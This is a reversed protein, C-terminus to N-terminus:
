DGYAFPTEAGDLSGICAARAVRGGVVATQVFDRRDFGQGRLREVAFVCGHEGRFFPIALASRMPRVSTELEGGLFAGESHCANRETWARLVLPGYGTDPLDRPYSGVVVLRKDRQGVYLSVTDVKLEAAVLELCREIWLRRPAQALAVEIERQMKAGSDSGFREGGECVIAPIAISQTLEAPLDDVVAETPAEPRAGSGYLLRTKGIEILDGERLPFAHAPVLRLGNLLTGNSSGADHLVHQGEVRKISAHVRSVSQDAIVLDCSSSRGITASRREGLALACHDHDTQYRLHM